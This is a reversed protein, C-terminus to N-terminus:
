QLSLRAERLKRKAIDIDQLIAMNRAYDLEVSGLDALAQLLRAYVTTWQTIEPLLGSKAQEKPSTRYVTRDWDNLHDFLSKNKVNDVGAGYYCALTHRANPRPIEDLRSLSIVELADFWGAFGANAM